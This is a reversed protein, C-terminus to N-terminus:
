NQENKKRWKQLLQNYFYGTADNLGEYSKIQKEIWDVPIAEVTKAHQKSDIIAENWANRWAHIGDSDVLFEDLKDADILRM